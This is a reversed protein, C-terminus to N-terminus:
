LVCTEFIKSTVLYPDSNSGPRRDEFYGKNNQKTENGIRVSCNRDAIGSTFKTLYSTESVGTMRSDNNSGYVLMHEEHKNSLKEIAQEIHNYGNENRMYLTSFNTHCGSGNWEGTIPKPDYNIKYGFDESLRELIFRAIWLHDGSEIGNCPGVQFEWQGPAVEANIGSVKVGAYICLQLHTEVINRGFTNNYGIGCYYQGQKNGTVPNHESDFGCITLDRNMLFYEQELGFWPKSEINKDFLSKALHRTNSKLPEGKSNYTDCLVLWNNGKQRFPDIFVAQPKLFTKSDKDSSQNTSSGDYNWEPIKSIDIEQKKSKSLFSQPTCVSQTLIVKTKSRIDNNAGLWIYELCSTM